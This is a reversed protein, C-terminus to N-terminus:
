QVPVQEILRKILGEKLAYASAFIKNFTHQQIIIDILTMSVIIMDVRLSILGPVNLREARTKGVLNHYIAEINVQEIHQCNKDSTNNEKADIMQVISEFAGSAGILTNIKHHALNVFLEELTEKLYKRLSHLQNTPIPDQQHFEAMLRQGGIEYSKKWLIKEQNCIIFEVSGGGIDMIAYNDNHDCEELTQKVGEYILDAELDGSIVKIKIGTTIFYNEVIEDSNEANRFASTATACYQHVEHKNMLESFFRLAQEGRKYAEPTILDKTIGGEGIKVPIREKHIPTIIGGEVEAILLHFTNTGLDIVAVKEM